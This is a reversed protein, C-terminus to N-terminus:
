RHLVTMWLCFLVTGKLVKKGGLAKLVAEGLAIAVDEVTHHEDIIFIV